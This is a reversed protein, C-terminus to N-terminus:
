KTITLGIRVSVNRWYRKCQHSFILMTLCNVLTYERTQVGVASSFSARWEYEFDSSHGSGVCYIPVPRCSKLSINNPSQHLM